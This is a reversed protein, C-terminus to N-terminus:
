YDENNITTISELGGAIANCDAQLVGTIHQFDNMLNLLDSALTSDLVDKWEDLLELMVRVKLPIGKLEDQMDSNSTQINELESAIKVSKSINFERDKVIDHLDFVDLELPKNSTMIHRELIQIDM